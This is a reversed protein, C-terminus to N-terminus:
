RKSKADTKYSIRRIASLAVWRFPGIGIGVSCRVFIAPCLDRFILPTKWGMEEGDSSYQQWLRATPVGMKSFALM